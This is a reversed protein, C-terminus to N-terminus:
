SRASEASTGNTARTAIRFTESLALFQGQLEDVAEFAKALRTLQAQFSKAPEM